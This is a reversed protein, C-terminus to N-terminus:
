PGSELPNEATFEQIQRALNWRTCSMNRGFNTKPVLKENAVVKSKMAFDIDGGGTAGSSDRICM